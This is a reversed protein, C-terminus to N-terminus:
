VPLAIASICRGYDPENKHCSRRYSFFQSDHAYTDHALAGVHEIGFARLRAVVYGALDFQWHGM